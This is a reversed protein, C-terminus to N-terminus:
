KGVCFRSFIHKLVDESTRRGTVSELLRRARAIDALVLEESAEGGAADVAAVADALAVRAERLLTEQRLNTVVVADRPSPDEAEIAARIGSRLADTGAGTKLSVVVIRAGKVVAPGAEVEPRWAPEIDAKNCVIVRSEGGAEALLARDEDELPRSLDFVLLLVDAVGAARRARSVGEREVEDAGARLGATDVVGLRIGEFEIAETVLDRTTGPAAAVIARDSGVLWNFLSSKGVNPRGLIALSRGERILRGRRASVLLADVGAAVRALSARAEGTGVFHYGEDPFDLSAELRAALDFLGGELAAIAQTLTGDLQDCAVRAQLPTVAEVLDRVAEAQVLDIRGNLFARLTFEGPEALRAGAQVAASVIARLVAVSGHASIEVVDEATYSHPAAFFTAVVEDLREGSADCAHAFTAHRPKLAPAGMLIAAAVRLAAAGSIRIVGLGGRGLPTAIAVITDTPSFM